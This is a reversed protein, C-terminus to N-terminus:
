AEVVRTNSFKDHWGSNESGLFSFADFPIFRCLSRVFANGLSPTEGKENVVKTKTIYKAISRGTSAEMITYYTMGVIFGFAYDILKNQQDFFSLSSPSVLALIIGLGAGFLIGFIVLFISDILHNAFRKGQSAPKLVIENEFVTSMQKQILETDEIYSSCVDIFDARENTLGCIVGLNLDFKQNKCTKCLKLQEERTM